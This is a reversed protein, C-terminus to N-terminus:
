RTRRKVVKPPITNRKAARPQSCCSLFSQTQNTTIPLWWINSHLVRRHLSARRPKTCKSRAGIPAQRVTTLGNPNDYNKKSSEHKGSSSPEYSSCGSKSLRWLPHTVSLRIRFSHLRRRQGTAKRTIRAGTQQKTRKRTDAQLDLRFFSFCGCKSLRWLPHTVSLRIRFSHLRRRQGTAKRTIRAGTQQKTRKRTDTQLDLRFFFSVWM